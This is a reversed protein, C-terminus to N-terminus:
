HVLAFLGFFARLANAVLKLEADAAPARAIADLQGTMEMLLNHDREVVFAIFQTYFQFELRYGPISAVLLEVMRASARSKAADDLSLWKYFEQEVAADIARIVRVAQPDWVLWNRWRM